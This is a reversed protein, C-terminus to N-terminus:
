IFFEDFYITIGALLGILFIGSLIVSLLSGFMVSENNYLATKHAGFSNMKLFELIKGM